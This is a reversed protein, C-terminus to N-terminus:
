GHERLIKEVIDSAIREIDTVFSDVRHVFYNYFALVPIAILLGAQTTILAEFIGGAVLSASIQDALAINQFASIMGSVTGLFGLLPAINGIAALVSLGNELSATEIAGSAAIGKEVHDPGLDRLRLGKLIIRSLVINKEECFREVDAISGNKIKEDLEVIFERPNTRVRHYFIFREIVFGMGIAACIIIPWMFLGGKSFWAYLSIRQESEERFGEGADAEDEPSLTEGSEDATEDGTEGATEPEAAESTEKEYTEISKEDATRSVATGSDVEANVSDFLTYSFLLLASFLLLFIVPKRM